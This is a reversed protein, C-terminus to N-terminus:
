SDAGNTRLTKLIQRRARHLRGALIPPDVGAEAAAEAYSLACVDVLWLAQAQQIPLQDAAALLADGSSTPRSPSRRPGGLAIVHQTWWTVFACVDHGAVECLAIM